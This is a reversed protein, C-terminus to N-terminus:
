SDKFVEVTARFRLHPRGRLDYALAMCFLKQIWDGSHEVCLSLTLVQFVDVYARSVLEELTFNTLINDYRLKRYGDEDKQLALQIDSIAVPAGACWM